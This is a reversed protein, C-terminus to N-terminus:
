RYHFRVVIETEEGLANAMAETWSGFPARSQIADQCLMATFRDATTEVIGVDRVRGDPLLVFRVLVRSPIDIQGYGVDRVLLHWQASIAEFMRQQYEGFESFRADVAVVGVRGASGIAGRPGAIAEPPVRPRPRPSPQVEEEQELTADEGPGDLRLVRREEETPERDPDVRPSVGEGELTERLFEPGAPIGGGPLGPLSAATEAAEPGEGTSYVGPSLPEEEETLAAELLREFDEEGEVSAMVGEEGPEPQAAQQDLAAERDTEDPRERPARPNTEVFRREREPTTEWAVELPRSEVAMGAALGQSLFFGLYLHLLVSLVIGYLVARRTLRFSQEEMRRHFDWVPLGPSRHRSKM